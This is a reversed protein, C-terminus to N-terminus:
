ALENVAEEESSGEETQEETSSNEDGHLVRHILTRVQDVTPRPFHSDIDGFEAIMTKEEETLPSPKCRLVQLEYGINIPLPGSKVKKFVVTWGKEPDTVPGLDEQANLIQEFLKKKLHIVCPEGTSRDICVMSYNWQCKKGPFSEPVLDEEKNTFKEKDRDFGLCEIPIDKNNHSKVWYVYKPLVGGVLRIANEGMKYEYSAVGKQAKGKTKGLDVAM